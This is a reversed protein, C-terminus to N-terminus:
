YLKGDFMNGLSGYVLYCLYMTQYVGNMTQFCDMSRSIYFILRM